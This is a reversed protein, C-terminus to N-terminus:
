MDKLGNIHTNVVLSSLYQMIPFINLIKISSLHLCLSFVLGCDVSCITAKGKMEKAANNFEDYTKTGARATAM